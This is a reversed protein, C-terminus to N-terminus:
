LQVCDTVVFVIIYCLQQFYILVQQHRLEWARSGIVHHVLLWRSPMHLLLTPEMVQPLNVYVRVTM